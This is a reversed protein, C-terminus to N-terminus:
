GGPLRRPLLEEAVVLEEAAALEKKAKQCCCAGEPRKAACALEKKAKPLRQFLLERPEVSHGPQKVMAVTGVFV